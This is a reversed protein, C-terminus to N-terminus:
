MPHVHFERTAVVKDEDDHMHADGDTHPFVEAKLTYDGHEPVNLVVDAHHEFRGEAHAHEEYQYLVQSEDDSKYITVAVNHVTKGESEIFNVHVHMTDGAMKDSDDPQMIQISYDYTEDTMDKDDDDSCATFALTIMALFLISFFSNLKM